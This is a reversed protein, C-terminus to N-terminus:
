NALLARVGDLRMDYRKAVPHKPLTAYHQMDVHKGTGMTNGDIIKAHEASPDYPRAHTVKIEDDYVGLPGIWDPHTVSHHFPTDPSRYVRMVTGQPISPHQDTTIRVRTGVPLATTM